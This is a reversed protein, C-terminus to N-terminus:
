LIPHMMLKSLHKKQNPYFLFPNRTLESIAISGDTIIWDTLLDHWFNDKDLTSGQYLMTVETVESLQRPTPNEPLLKDTLIYTDEGSPKHIVEAVYGVKITEDGDKISILEGITYDTDKEPYQKMAISLNQKDTYKGM